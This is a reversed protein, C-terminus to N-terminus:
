ARERHAGVIRTYLRKVFSQRLFSKLGNIPYMSEEFDYLPNRYLAHSYRNYSIQFNGVDIAPDGFQAVILGDGSFSENVDHEVIVRGGLKRVTFLCRQHTLPDHTINHHHTSFICFRIRNDRLLNCCSSLVELELGQADCHLIDLTDIHKIDFIEPVTYQRVAVVQNKGKRFQTNSISSSGISGNIFEVPLQNIRANERGVELHQPIPELAIARREAPYDKKFWLSYYSWYAGLELMTAKPPLARLVHHFAIEEQPEHHGHLLSIIETMESGYYGNALVKLGNHMVQLLRKDQEIIQGAGACKSIADCDRCKATMEIRFRSSQVKAVMRELQAVQEPMIFSAEAYNAHRQHPAVIPPPGYRAHALTGAPAPSGDAPSIHAGEGAIRRTQQLV